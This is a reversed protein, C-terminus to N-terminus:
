IDPIVLRGTAGSRIEQRQNRIGSEQNRIGSRQDVQKVSREMGM